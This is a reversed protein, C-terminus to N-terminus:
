KLKRKEDELIENTKELKKNQNKLLEISEERSSILERIDNDLIERLSWYYFGYESNTRSLETTEFSDKNSGRWYSNSINNGIGKNKMDNYYEDLENLHQYITDRTSKFGEIEKSTNNIISNNNEITSDNSNIECTYEEVTKGM